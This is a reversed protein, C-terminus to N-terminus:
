KSKLDFNITNEGAKVSETLTTKSNYKKPVKEKAPDTTGDLDTSIQISHTGLVAGEDGNKFLLAYKGNDDTLASSVPAFKVSSDAKPIFTVVASALPNGDLTITGTVKGLDPNYSDSGSCGAMIAILFIWSLRSSLFRDM